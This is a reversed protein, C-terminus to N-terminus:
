FLHLYQAVQTKIENRVKENSIEFPIVLNKEEFYAINSCSYEYSYKGNKMELLQYHKIISGRGCNIQVRHLHKMQTPRTIAYFLAEFSINVNFAIYHSTHKVTSDSFNIGQIVPIKININKIVYANLIPRLIFTLINFESEIALASATPVKNQIIETNQLKMQHIYASIHGQEIVQFDTQFVIDSHVQIATELTNNDKRVNLTIEMNMTVGIINEDFQVIPEKFVKMEVEVLKDKGYIKTIGWVMIEFWQTTLKIPIEEPIMEPKFTFQLYNSKFMTYLATNISYDSIMLQIQKGDIQYEPLNTPFPYHPTLTEPINTNVIGGRSNFLLFGNSIKPPSLLAYDVAMGNENLKFYTPLGELAKKLMENSQTKVTNIVQNTISSKIAPKLLNIFGSIASGHLEFDFDLGLDFSVISADPYQKGEKDKSNLAIKMDVNITNVQLEVYETDVIFAFTFRGKFHGIAKINSLNVHIINPEAFEVKVLEPSLQTVGIHIESLLVNIIFPGVNVNTSVDPIAIDKMKEAIKPIVFKIMKFVTEDNIVGRLGSENECFVFPLIIFLFLIKISM